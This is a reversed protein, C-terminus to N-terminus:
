VHARGIERSNSGFGHILVIPDGDRPGEDLYALRIGDSLFTPMPARGHRTSTALSVPKM